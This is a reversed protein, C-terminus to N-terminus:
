REKSCRHPADTKLKKVGCPEGIAHLDTNSNTNMVYAAKVKTGDKKEIEINGMWKIAMDIAKGSIHNSTLAPANTSSPPVALGFGQVM